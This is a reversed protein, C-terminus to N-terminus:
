IKLEHLDSTLATRLGRQGLRQAIRDAPHEHNSADM